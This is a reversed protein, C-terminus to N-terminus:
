REVLFRELWEEFWEKAFLPYLNLEKIKDRDVWMPEYYNDEDNRRSEEGSLVPEGSEWRGVFFYDRREKRLYNFFDFAPKLEKVKVTTEEEIERRVTDVPKEGFRMHGGPFVYYEEGDRRRFM